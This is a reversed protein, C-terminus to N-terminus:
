SLRYSYNDNVPLFLLLQRRDCRAACCAPARVVRALVGGLVVDNTLRRARYGFREDMKQGNHRRVRGGGGRRENARREIGPLRPAQNFRALEGGDLNPAVPISPRCVELRENWFPLRGRRHVRVRDRGSGIPDEM